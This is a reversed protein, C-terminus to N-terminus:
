MKCNALSIKNNSHLFWSLSMTFVMIVMSILLASFLSVLEECNLYKQNWSVPYISLMRLDIENLNKYIFAEKGSVLNKWKNAVGIGHLHASSSNLWCWYTPLQLNTFIFSETATASLLIEPCHPWPITSQWNLVSPQPRNCRTPLHSFPSPPMNGQPSHWHVHALCKCVMHLYASNSENCFNCKQFSCHGFLLKAKFSWLVMTVWYGYLLSHAKAMASFPSGINFHVKRFDYKEYIYIYMGRCLVYLWVYFIKSYSLLLLYM